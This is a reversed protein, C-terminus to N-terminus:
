PFETIYEPHVILSESICSTACGEGEWGANYIDRWSIGHAQALEYKFNRYSCLRYEFDESDCAEILRPLFLVDRCRSYDYSLTGIDSDAVSFLCTLDCCCEVTLDIDIEVEDDAWLNAVFAPLVCLLLLLKFILEKKM